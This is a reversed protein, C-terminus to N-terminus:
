KGMNRKGMEAALSPNKPIAARQQQQQQQQQQMQQKQQQPQPVANNGGMGMPRAVCMINNCAPCMAVKTNQPVVLCTTCTGCQVRINQIPTVVQCIPCRVSPAGVPFALVTSCEQCKFQSQLQHGDEM